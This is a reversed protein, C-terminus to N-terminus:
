SESGARGCGTSAAEAMRTCTASVGPSNGSSARSPRAARTTSTSRAVLMTMAAQSEPQALWREIGKTPVAVVDPEFPDDLPALLMEALGDALRDAREARHVHLM